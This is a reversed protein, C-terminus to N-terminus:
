VKGEGSEIDRCLISGAKLGLMKAEAMPPAQGFVSPKAKRAKTIRSVFEPM